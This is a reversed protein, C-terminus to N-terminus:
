QLVLKATYLKDGAQLYIIYIGAPKGTLDIEESGAAPSIDFQRELALTGDM